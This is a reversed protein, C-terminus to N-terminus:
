PMFAEKREVTEYVWTGISHTGRWIAVPMGDSEGIVVLEKIYTSKMLIVPYLYHM